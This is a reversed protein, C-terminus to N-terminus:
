RWCYYYRWNRLLEVDAKTVPHNPGLVRSEKKVADSLMRVADHFRGMTKWIEALRKMDYLTYRHEGGLVRQNQELLRIRQREAKELQGQEFSMDAIMSAVVLTNDHDPGLVRNMSQFVNTALEEAERLRGLAKWTEALKVMQSLVNPHEAGLVQKIQEILWIQHREASELQGKEFSAEAIIKATVLTYFHKPGLVRHMTNFVQAALEKAEEIRGQSLYIDALGISSELTVPHEPGLVRKMARLAQSSLKEAEGLRGQQLYICALVGSFCFTSIHGLGLICELAKQAFAGLEGAEELRGQRLYVVSLDRMIFIILGENSDQYRLCISFIFLLLEKAESLLDRELKSLAIYRLCYLTRPHHSGFAARFGDLARQYLDEAEDSNKGTSLIFALIMVSELTELAEKGLLAEQERLARRLMKEATSTLLLERAYCGARYLLDTWQLLAKKSRPKQEMAAKAHAILLQGTGWDEINVKPFATSVRGIFAEKCREWDRTNKLWNRAALQVLRHMEFSDCKVSITVLSFSTLIRIDDEFGISCKADSLDGDDYKPNTSCDVEASEKAVCKRHLLSVPIGQRDFCSMLGLLEAASPHHRQILEFTMCLTNIASNSATPDRQSDGADQNLLRMKVRDNRKFLKIYNRTSYRPQRRRIYLAAQTIALAVMGLERVLELAAARDDSSGLKKEFLALSEMELMPPIKIINRYHGTLTYGVDDFRTTVMISGNENVPLYKLLTISAETRAGSTSTQQHTEQINSFISEDDANDLVVLWKGNNRNLLWNKVMQLINANPDNRGPIKVAEAIARYGEEFRIVSASHVWFM